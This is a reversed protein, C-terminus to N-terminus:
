KGASTLLQLRVRQRSRQPAATRARYAECRLHFTKRARRRRVEPSGYNMRRSGYTVALWMPLGVVDTRDHSSSSHNSFLLKLTQRSAAQRLAADVPRCLMAYPALSDLFM